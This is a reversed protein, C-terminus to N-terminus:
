LRLGYVKDLFILWLIAFNRDFISTSSSTALVSLDRGESRGLRKRLGLKDMQKGIIKSTGAYLRTIVYQNKNSLWARAKQVM